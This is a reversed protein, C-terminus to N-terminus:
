LCIHKFLTRITENNLLAVVNPIECIYLTLVLQQEHYARKQRLQINSSEVDKYTNSSSLIDYHHTSARKVLICSVTPLITFM